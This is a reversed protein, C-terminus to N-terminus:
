RVYCSNTFLLKKNMNGPRSMTPKSRRPGTSGHIAEGILLLEEMFGSRDESLLWSRSGAAKGPRCAPLSIPFSPCRGSGTSNPLGTLITPHSHFVGIVELGLRAAEQEGHLYDQPTLLYRNHRAAAERANAFTSCSTVRRPKEDTQIRRAAARRRRRPLSSRRPSPDPRLM